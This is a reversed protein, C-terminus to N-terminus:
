QHPWFGCSPLSNEVPTNRFSYKLFRHVTESSANISTLQVCNEFANFKIYKLYSNIKVDRINSCNTFTTDKIETIGYPLNIGIQNSIGILSISSLSSCNEFCFGGIYSVGSPMWVSKLSTCSAFCGSGISRTNSSLIINQLSSCFMFMLGPINGNPIGIINDRNIKTLNRCGYFCQSEITNIRTPFDIERMNSTSALCREGLYTITTPINITVLNFCDGFCSTKLEKIGNPLEIVLLNSCGHFCYEGLSLVSSPITLKTLERCHSFCSEGIFALTSPLILRSVNYCDSFIAKGLISIPAYIEITSVNECSSFAEEGIFRCNPIIIEKLGNCYKFAHDSIDKLTTPFNITTFSDCNTFAYSRIYSLNEPLIINQLSSCNAFCWDGIETVSNPITISVLDSCHTFTYDELYNITNPLNILTLNFCEYFCGSGIKTVSSPITIDKINTNYPLDKRRFTDSDLEIIFNPITITTTYINSLSSIKTVQPIINPSLSGILNKFSVREDTIAKLREEFLSHSEDDNPKHQNVIDDFSVRPLVIIKKISKGLFRTRIEMDTSIGDNIEKIADKPLAENKLTDVVRDIIDVSNLKEDEYIIRTETNQFLERDRISEETGNLDFNVQNQKYREMLGRYKKCCKEVNIYDQTGLFYKGVILMCHADVSPQVTVKIEEKGIIPSTSQVDNLHKPQVVQKLSQESQEFQVSPQQQGVTRQSSSFPSSCYPFENRISCLSNEFPNIFPSPPRSNIRSGSQSAVESYSESLDLPTLSSCSQNKQVEVLVTRRSPSDESVDQLDILPIETVSCEEMQSEQTM